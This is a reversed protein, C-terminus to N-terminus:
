YPWVPLYLLPDSTVEVHIVGLETEVEDRAFALNAHIQYQGKVDILCTVPISATASEGPGLRAPFTVPKTDTCALPRNDRTVRFIMEAAGLPVESTAGNTVRVVVHYAGARWEPQTFKVGTLNGGMAAYLQPYSALARPVNREGGTVDFGFSGVRSAPANGFSTMVDIEYHGLLPLSCLERMIKISARPAIVNPDRPRLDTPSDCRMRVAGRRALFSVGIPSVDRPVGTGNTIVLEVAEPKSGLIESRYPASPKGVATVSFPATIEAGTTTVPASPASLPEVAAPACGLFMALFLQPRSIV